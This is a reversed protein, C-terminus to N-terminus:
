GQGCHGVRVWSGAVSQLDVKDDVPDCALSPKPERMIQAPPTVALGRPGKGRSPRAGGGGLGSWM